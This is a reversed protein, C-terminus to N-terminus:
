GLTSASTSLDIRQPAYPALSVPAPYTNYKLRREGLSTFISIFSQSGSLKWESIIDRIDKIDIDEREGIIYM